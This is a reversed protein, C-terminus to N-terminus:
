SNIRKEKEEEEEERRKSTGRSRRNHHFILQCSIHQERTTRHYGINTEQVFDSVAAKNIKRKLFHFILWDRVKILELAQYGFQRNSTPFNGNGLDLQVRGQYTVKLVEKNCETAM